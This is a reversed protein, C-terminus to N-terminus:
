NRDSPGKSYNTDSRRKTARDGPHCFCKNEKREVIDAAIEEM